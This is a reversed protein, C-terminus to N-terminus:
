GPTTHPTLLITALLRAFHRSTFVQNPVTNGMGCGTQTTRTSLDSGSYIMVIAPLRAGDKAGAPLLLTTRVNEISGDYLPVRTELVKATGLKFGGLRPDVVSVRSKNSLDSSFRYLDPPTAVNEYIAFIQQHDLCSGFHGLQYLCHVLM